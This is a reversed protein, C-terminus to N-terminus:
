SGCRPYRSDGPQVRHWTDRQGLLGFHATVSIRDPDIAEIRMNLTIGRGRAQMQGEWRNVSIQNYHMRPSFGCLDQRASRPLSPDRFNSMVRDDAPNYWVIRGCATTEPCARLAIVVDMSEPKWLSEGGSVLVPTRPTEQANGAASSFAMALGAAGAMIKSRMDKMAPFSPM